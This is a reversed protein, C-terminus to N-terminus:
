TSFDQVPVPRGGDPRHGRRHRGGPRGRRRSLTDHDPSSLPM